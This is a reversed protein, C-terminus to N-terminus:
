SCSTVEWQAGTLLNIWSWCTCSDGHENTYSPWIEYCIVVFPCSWKAPDPQTPTPPPGIDITPGGGPPAANAVGASLGLALPAFVAVVMVTAFLRRLVTPTAQTKM